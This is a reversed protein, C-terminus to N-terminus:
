AERKRARRMLTYSAATVPEVHMGVPKFGLKAYFRPNRADFTELYCSVGAADAEALTPELLRRGIGRGQSQPIVGVISLYWADHDIVAAAHPKMFGVIQRYAQLGARGLAERLFQHKAAEATAAAAQQLPLLWIAAGQGPDSWVLLKGVRQGETMSYDFYRALAALKQREDAFHSTIAAYFPDYRLAAVLAAVTQPANRLAM